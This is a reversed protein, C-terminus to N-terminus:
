QQGTALANVSIEFTKTRYLKTEASFTSLGAAASRELHPRDALVPTSCTTATKKTFLRWSTCCVIRNQLDWGYYNQVAALEVHGVQAM